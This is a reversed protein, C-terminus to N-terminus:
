KRKLVQLLTLFCNLRKLTAYIQGFKVNPKKFRKTIAHRYYKLYAKINDMRTPFWPMNSYKQEFKAFHRKGVAYSKRRIRYMKGKKKEFKKQHTKLFHQRTAYKKIHKKKYRIFKKKHFKM